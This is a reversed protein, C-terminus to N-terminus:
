LGGRGRHCQRCQEVRADRRQGVAHGSFVDFVPNTAGYAAAFAAGNAALVLYNTPALTSGNPFTYGLGQFQWGSLDFALNTSNNFLEVFQANAILPDYMIENIVVQGAPSANTGNYVVSVNGSDGAIPQGTHDVGLVSFQNTGATLPVTVAWTTLSTWTLPYAAGNIWVTAVNVPATGTM